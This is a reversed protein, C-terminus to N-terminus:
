EIFASPHNVGIPPFPNIESLVLYMKQYSLYGRIFGKRIMEAVFWIVETMEVNLGVFKLAIHFKELPIRSVRNNLIYVKKFLSRISIERALEVTLFTEHAVLIKEKQLLAEEFKKVNGDKIADIFPGYLENIAPYRSLLERSPLVGRILWVPILYRLILEKNNKEFRPCRRFAAVFREEAQQYAAELFLLRGHYYLFTVQHPKPYQGLNPLDQVKISRLINTCLNRQRVKFYTKFAFGAMYYVGWKRSTNLPSRDTICTSFGKNINRAAEDLCKPDEDNDILYDDAKDALERTEWCIMYLVPLIWRSLNSALRFFIITMNNHEKYVEYYNNKHIALLVKFYQLILEAWPNGIIRHVDAELKKPNNQSIKLTLDKVHSAATSLLVKIGDGDEASACSQFSDYYIKMNM